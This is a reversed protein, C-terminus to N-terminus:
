FPIIYNNDFVIPVEFPGFKFEILVTSVFSWTKLESTEGQRMKLQPLYTRSRPHLILLPAFVGSMGGYLFTKTIVRNLYYCKIKKLM